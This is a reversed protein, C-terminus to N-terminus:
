ILFDEQLRSQLLLNAFSKKLSNGEGKLRYFENLSSAEFELISDDLGQYVGAIHSSLTINTLQYFPHSSPLPETAFVDLFAHADPNNKLSNFLAD